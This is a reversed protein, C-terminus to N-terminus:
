KRMKIEWYNKSPDELCSPDFWLEYHKGDKTAFAHSEECIVSVEDFWVDFLLGDTDDMFNYKGDMNRVVDFGNENDVLIYGVQSYVLGQMDRDNEIEDFLEQLYPFDGAFNYTFIYTRNNICDYFTALWDRRKNFGQLDYKGGRDLADSVACGLNENNVEGYLTFAKNCKKVMDQFQASTFDECVSKVFVDYNM